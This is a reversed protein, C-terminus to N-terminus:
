QQQVSERHTESTGTLAWSPVKVRVTVQRTKGKHPRKYNTTAHAHMAAFSNTAFAHTTTDHRQALQAQNNGKTPSCGHASATCQTHM